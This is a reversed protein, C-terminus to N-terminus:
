KEVLICKGQEFQGFVWKNSDKKYFFGKISIILLNPLNFFLFVKVKFNDKKSIEMMFVVKQFAFDELDMSLAKITFDLMMKIMAIHHSVLVMPMKMKLSEMTDLPKTM